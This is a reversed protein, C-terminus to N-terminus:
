NENQCATDDGRDDLQLAIKELARIFSDREGQRLNDIADNLRFLPPDPLEQVLEKGAETASVMIQRRDDNARRRRILKRAQLRVLIGVITSPSLHVSRSIETSNVPGKEVISHLTVLQPGTINFLSSLRKSDIEVARIIRRLAGHVRNRHETNDNEVTAILGNGNAPFSESNGSTSM